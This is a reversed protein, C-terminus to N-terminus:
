VVEQAPDVADALLSGYNRARPVRSAASRTIVRQIVQLQQPRRRQRRQSRYRSQCGRPYPLGTLCGSELGVIAKASTWTTM